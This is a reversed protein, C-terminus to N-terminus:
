TEDAERDKIIKIFRVTNGEPLFEADVGLRWVAALKGEVYIAPLRDREEPPIRRDLCLRKVSRRGRGGSLALRGGPPAPAVTVASSQGQPSPRLSLGEGEPRDLLVLTCDGWRLPRGPLLRVEAPAQPQTELVLEGQCCRATVSHPLSLRREPKRGPRCILDLIASLHVAGMDRRGVGLLDFMHLLMRPRVAEPAQLLTDASLSVRGNRVEAYATRVAADEELVHDICRLQGATRSIHEAARPNLEELLPMIRLRLFNRSAADPDTNTEDEIHPIEWAAACDELEARTVDLLPRCIGDRQREM